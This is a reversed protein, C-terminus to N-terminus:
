AFFISDVETASLNFLAKIMKIENRNFETEGKMKRTVSSESIGLKDALITQNMENEAMIGKLRNSKFMIFAEKRANGYTYYIM